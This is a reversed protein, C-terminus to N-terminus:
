VDNLYRDRRKQLRHVTQMWNISLIALINKFKVKIDIKVYKVFLFWNAYLLSNDIKYQVTRHTKDKTENGDIFAM